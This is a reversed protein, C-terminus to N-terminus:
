GSNISEIHVQRKPRKAASISDSDAKSQVATRSLTSVTQGGSAFSDVGIEQCYGNEYEDIIKSPLLSAPQWSSETEPKGLWVM